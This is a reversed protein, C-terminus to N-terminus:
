IPRFARHRRWGGRDFRRNIIDRRRDIRARRIQRHEHRAVRPHGRRLARRERLRDMRIRRTDNRIDSRLRRMARTDPRIDRRPSTSDTSQAHSVAPAAVALALAAFIMTIRM